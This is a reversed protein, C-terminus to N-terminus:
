SQNPFHPKDIKEGGSSVTSDFAISDGKEIKEIEKEVDIQDWNKYYSPM